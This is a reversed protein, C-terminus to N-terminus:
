KTAFSKMVSFYRVKGQKNRLPSKLGGNAKVAPSASAGASPSPSSCSKGVCNHVVVERLSSQSSPNVAARDEEEEEEPGGDDSVVVNSFSVSPSVTKSKPARGALLPSSSLSSRKTPCTKLLSTARETQNDEEKSDSSDNCTKNPPPAATEQSSRSSGTLSVRESLM